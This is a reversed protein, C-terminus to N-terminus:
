ARVRDHWHRHSERARSRACRCRRLRTPVDAGRRRLRFRRSVPFVMVLPFSMRMLPADLEPLVDSALVKRFRRASVNKDGTDIGEDVVHEIELAVYGEIRRLVARLQVPETEPRCVICNM